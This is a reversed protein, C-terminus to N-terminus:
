SINAVGCAHGYLLDGQIIARNQKFKTMIGVSTIGSPAIYCWPGGLSVHGLKLGMM